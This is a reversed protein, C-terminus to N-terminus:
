HRAAQAPLSMWHRMVMRVASRLDRLSSMSPPLLEEVPMGAFVGPPLEMERELDDVVFKAVQVLENRTPRRIEHERLRSRLAQSLWVTSNCTLVFILTSLDCETQLYVDRWHRSENPELLSLLANQVSPSKAVDDGAKEVEDLAVLVTACGKLLPRLLPSPQGSSWGRATGLLSMSDSAGALSQSYCEIGLIEALRRALRTKGSGAPGTLLIPQFHLKIVGMQRRGIMEDFVPNIATTAWPFEATLQARRKELETVDPLAAVSMPRRLPEFERLVDTDGDGRGRPFREKVVTHVLRPLTSSKLAVAAPCPQLPMSEEEANRQLLRNLAVVAGTGCTASEGHAHGFRILRLWIPQARDRFFEARAQAKNSVETPEFYRSYLRLLRIAARAESEPLAQQAEFPMKELTEFSWKMTLLAQSLKQPNHWTLVPVGGEDLSSRSEDVLVDEKSLQSWTLWEVVDFSFDMELVRSAVEALFELREHMDAFETDYISAIRMIAAARAERTQDSRLAHYTQVQLDVYEEPSAWSFPMLRLFLHRCNQPLAQHIARASIGQYTNRYKDM